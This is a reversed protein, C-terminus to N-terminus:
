FQNWVFLSWLHKISRSTLTIAKLIHNMGDAAALFATPITAAQSDSLGSPIPWAVDAAALFYEQHCGYRHDGLPCFVLIKDGKKLNSVNTGVQYVIGVADSGYVTNCHGFIEAHAFDSRNVAAVVNRVLVEDPGPAYYEEISAVRQHADKDIWLALHPMLAQRDFADTAHFM